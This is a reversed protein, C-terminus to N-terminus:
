NPNDVKQTSYIKKLKLVKKMQNKFKLEFIGQREQRRTHITRGSCLQYVRQIEFEFAQTCIFQFILILGNRFPGHEM